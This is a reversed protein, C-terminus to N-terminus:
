VPDFEDFVKLKDTRFSHVKHRHTRSAKEEFWRASCWRYYQSNEVLRHRVPNEHVYLLRPWYSRDYTILSDWFQYWVRRGPTGDRQNAWKSSLMHYKSLMRSLTKPEEPSEAKFHYHNSFLAWAHLEWRFERCCQFFLSQLFDLREPGRFFHEKHLTAGTVMYIGKENLWHPPAHHWYSDFEM